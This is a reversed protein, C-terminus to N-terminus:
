VSIVNSINKNLNETSIRKNTKALDNYMRILRDYIKSERETFDKMGTRTMKNFQLFKTMMVFHERPITKQLQSQMATTRIPLVSRSVTTSKQQSTRMRQNYQKQTSSMDVIVRCKKERTM